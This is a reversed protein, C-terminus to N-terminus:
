IKDIMASVLSTEKTIENKYWTIYDITNKYFDDLLSQETVYPTLGLKVSPSHFSFILNETKTQLLAKTVNKMETLTFGEPSLRHRKVSSLKFLIKGLLSANLKKFSVPNNNLYQSLEPIYSVFGSTHPINTIGNKTFTKNNHNSFDPGQQHSFDVFPSISLDIKYGLESLIKTTNSGIGYRGALYTTPQQGTITQIAETLTKIKEYEANKALNGPYSDIENVPAEDHAEETKNLHEIAFPPNVWPHCHCAFEVNNNIQPLFHNIVRIGADSKVFAYDLAFTIKAGLAILTDCFNILEKGHTVSTNSRYFGKNWDFEEETHIVIALKPPLHTTQQTTM